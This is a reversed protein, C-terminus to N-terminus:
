RQHQMSNQQDREREIMYMYLRGYMIILPIEIQLTLHGSTLSSIIVSIKECGHSPEGAQTAHLTRNGLM